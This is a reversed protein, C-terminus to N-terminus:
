AVDKYDREEQWVDCVHCADERYVHCNKKRWIGDNYGRSPVLDTNKQLDTVDTEYVQERAM